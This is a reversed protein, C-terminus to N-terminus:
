DHDNVQILRYGKGRVTKILSDSHHDRALKKRLGSIKMDISRDFGDYSFGRLQSCCKERSVTEGIHTALLTLLDFEATSLEVLENSLFVERRQPYVSLGGTTICEDQVSRGDYRRLSAKLRAILVAPQFPKRVFDDAGKSFSAIESVDDNSGTLMIVPGQYHDRLLECVQIGNLGPLMIDLIVAVPSIALITEVAEDGRFVATCEFGESDLLMGLLRSIEEDDEVIVIQNKKNM